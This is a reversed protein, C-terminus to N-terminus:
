PFIQMTLFFPITCLCSPTENGEQGGILYEIVPNGLPDNFELYQLYDMDWGPDGVRRPM